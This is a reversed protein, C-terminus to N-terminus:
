EMKPLKLNVKKTEMSKYLSASTQQMAVMLPSKKGNIMVDLVPIQLLEKKISTNLEMEKESLDYIIAIVLRDVFPRYAEMIDDALCYANYKNHHHIGFTPLLGSAVLSRATIARLITYGYNLLNNPAAEFQGRKFHAIDNSFIRKWYYAAAQGELNQPDGTQVNKAFYLLNKYEFENEKLVLAQNTIKQKIVTKWLKNKFAESTNIQVAFHEQRTHGESLNLMLGQPLHKDCCTILAVNNSLLKHILGSSITIRYHDLIVIGVDEIPVTKQKQEDPYNVVLQETKTSLYAANGFYLTRKIM